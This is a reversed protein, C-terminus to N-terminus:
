RIIVFGRDELSDAISQAVPFKEGKEYYADGFGGFHKGTSIKGDGLKTVECQVQPEFRAAVKGRNAQRAAREELTEPAVPDPAVLGAKLDAKFQAAEAAAAATDVVPDPKPGSALISALIEAPPAPPPVPAPPPALEAPPAVTETQVGGAPARRTKTRESAPKQDTM